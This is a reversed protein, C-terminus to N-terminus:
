QRSRHDILRGPNSRDVADLDASPVQDRRAAHRVLGRDARGIVAAIEGRDEVGREGAGVNGAEGRAPGRGFRRVADQAASELTEYTGILALDHVLVWKGLFKTELNGRMAEYASIEQQLDAM